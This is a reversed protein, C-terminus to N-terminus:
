YTVDEARGGARARRVWGAHIHTHATYARLWLTRVWRMQQGDEVGGKVEGGKEPYGM